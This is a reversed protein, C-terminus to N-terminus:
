KSLKSPALRLMIEHVAERTDAIVISNDDAFVYMMVIHGDSGYLIRANKNEVIGDEFSKTLLYKTESNVTVAFFGHLDSFMKPEWAHLSDFIDPVSRMKFLIFFDNRQVEAGGKFAGMLFNDYVLNNDPLVFTGKILKIFKRLGVPSKNFTPYIAEIGGQKVKTNNIKQLVSAEIEDKKLSAVEISTSQDSFITPVFRQEVPVTATKRNILLFSLIAVSALLIFLGLLMFLKNKKSEPSLNGREIENEEEGHIIKKILGGEGDEIVKAMDEAYTQVVKNKIKNEQEM